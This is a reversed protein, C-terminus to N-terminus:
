TAPAAHICTCTTPAPPATAWHGRVEQAFKGGTSYVIRGGQRDLWNRIPAVDEHVPNALFDGLRTADVIM